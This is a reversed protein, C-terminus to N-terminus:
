IRVTPCPGWNTIDLWPRTARRSFRGGGGTLHTALRWPPNFALDTLPRLLEIRGEPLWGRGDLLRLPNGYDTEQELNMFCAEQVEQM